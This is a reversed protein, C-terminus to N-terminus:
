GEAALNGLIFGSVESLRGRWWVARNGPIPKGSTNFFRAEKLHIYGPGSSRSESNETDTNESPAAKYIGAYGSFSQRIREAAEKDAIPSTFDSAFGEFYKPGSVMIGSVLFGGVQLTLGIELGSASENVMRVFSELFWDHSPQPPSGEADVITQRLYKLTSALDTAMRANEHSFGNPSEIVEVTNLFLKQLDEYVKIYKETEDKTM